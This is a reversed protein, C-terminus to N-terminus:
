DPIYPGGQDSGLKEKRDFLCKNLTNYKTMSGKNKKPQEVVM